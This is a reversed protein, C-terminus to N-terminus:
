STPDDKFNATITQAIATIQPTIEPKGEDSNQRISAALPIEGLFPINLAKAEKKAGGHGFIHEEHGCNTCIHTSMNEILGIVPIGVKKFMEIGKRADILAIDQPTSVIIGGNVNVKQALSLHIDGTGPPTDIILIDLPQEATGWEVDQLMQMLARQVIPGRWILAAKSDDMMLGISMAKIGHTKIPIIKGQTGDPKQGQIGLMKPLSPGYIDADLLGVSQDTKSLALALSAAITSKGVGGKGSAVLIIHKVHPIAQPTQNAPTNGPPPTQKAPPARHQATFIIQAQKIGHIAAISQEAKQRSPELTQAQNADIELAIVAHGPNPMEIMPADKIEDLAFHDDLCVQIQAKLASITKQKNKKLFRFM